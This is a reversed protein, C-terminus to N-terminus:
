YDKNISNKKLYVLEAIESDQADNFHSLYSDSQHASNFQSKNYFHDVNKRKLLLSLGKSLKNNTFIRM